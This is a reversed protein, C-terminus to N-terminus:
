RELYHEPDDRLDWQAKLLILFYKFDEECWQMLIKVINKKEDLTITPDKLNKIMDTHVNDAYKYWTTKWMKDCWYHNMDETFEVFRSRIDILIDNLKKECSEVLENISEIEHLQDKELPYNSNYFEFTQTTASEPELVNEEPVGPVNNNNEEALNRRLTIRTAKGNYSQTSETSLKNVDRYELSGQFTCLLLFLYIINTFLTVANITINKNRSKIPSISSELTPINARYSGSNGESNVDLLSSCCKM